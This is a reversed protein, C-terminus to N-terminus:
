QPAGPKFRAASWTSCPPSAVVAICLNSTALAIVREAVEDRAMDHGIGGREYDVQIVKVGAAALHAALDGDRQVGSCLYIVFPTTPETM